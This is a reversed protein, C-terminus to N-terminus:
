KAEVMSRTSYDLVVGYLVSTLLGYKWQFKVWTISMCRVYLLKMFLNWCTSKEKKKLSIWCTSKILVISYIQSPGGASHGFPHPGPIYCRGLRKMSIQSDNVAPLPDSFLPGNAVLHAKWDSTYTIQMNMYPGLWEYIPRTICTECSPWVISRRERTKM